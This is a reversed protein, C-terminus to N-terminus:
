EFRKIPRSSKPRGPRSAALAPTRTTGELGVLLKRLLEALTAQEDENLVDLAERSSELYAKLADAVVDSGEPTLRMLVARRDDPDPRRVIWGAGVLRDAEGTMGGSTLMAAKACESAPLGTECDARVLAGLVDLDRSSLGTESVAEGTRRDLHRAIRELRGTVKLPATELDPWQKAWAEIACDVFDTEM